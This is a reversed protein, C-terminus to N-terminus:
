KYKFLFINTKIDYNMEINIGQIYSVSVKTQILILYQMLYEVSLASSCKSFHCMCDQITNVLISILESRVTKQETNVSQSQPHIYQMTKSHSSCTINKNPTRWVKWAELKTVYFLGM